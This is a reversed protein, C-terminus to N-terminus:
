SRCIEIGTTHLTL